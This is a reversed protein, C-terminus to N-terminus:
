AVRGDSSGRGEGPPQQGLGFNVHLQAIEINVTGIASVPAPVRTTSQAAAKAVGDLYDVFNGFRYLSLAEFNVQATEPNVYAFGLGTIAGLGSRRLVSAFRRLLREWKMVEVSHDVVEAAARLVLEENAGENNNSRNNTQDDNAM